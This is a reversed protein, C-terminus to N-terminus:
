LEEWMRAFSAAEGALLADMGAILHTQKHLKHKRVDLIGITGTAGFTVELLHLLTNLRHKSLPDAKFYLKVVHPQGNILMGLEPNVRVELQGSRWHAAPPGTWSLDKRGMWQQYGKVCLTYNAVKKADSLSRLLRDLDARSGGQKHMEVIARRLPGWYDKAPDYDEGYFQKAEKIRTIRTTGNAVVFDVFTTMSIQM